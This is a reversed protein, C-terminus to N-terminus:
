VTNRKGAAAIESANTNIGIGAGISTNITTKKRYGVQLVHSARDGALGSLGAGDTGSAGEGGDKTDHDV